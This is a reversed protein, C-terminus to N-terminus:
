RLLLMPRVVVAQVGTAVSRAEIRCHYMGAPLKAASWAIAHTGADARGQKLLAVERGLADLVSLRVDAPSRLDYAITTSGTFPNPHNQHLTIARPSPLEDAGVIADSRLVIDAQPKAPDNTAFRLIARKMGASTPRHRIRVLSSSGAAIPSAATQLLTFQAADAGTVSQQSLVLAATGENRVTLQEDASGGVPVTRFDISDRDFTIRAATTACVGHLSVTLAPRQPDNSNITFSGTHSGLATPRYELRATGNAGPAITSPATALLSFGTGAVTQATLTLQAAGTNSVVLDRIIPTNPPTSAFDLDAQAVITPALSPALRVVLYGSHLVRGSGSSMGVASQGASMYLAHIGDTAGGGLSGDVARWDIRQQAVGTGFSCLLLAAALLVTAKM